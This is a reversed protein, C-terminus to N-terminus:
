AVAGEARARDADIISVLEGVDIRLIEALKALNDAAPLRDGRAWSHATGRSVGVHLAIKSVRYPTLLESLTSAM